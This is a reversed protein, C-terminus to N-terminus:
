RENLLRYAIERCMLSKSALILEERESPAQKAQEYLKEAEELLSKFSVSVGFLILLANNVEWLRQKTEEYELKDTDKNLYQIEEGLMTQQEELLEKIFEM